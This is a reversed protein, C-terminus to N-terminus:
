TDIKVLEHIKGIADPCIVRIFDLNKPDNFRLVMPHRGSVQIDDGFNKLYQYIYERNERVARNSKIKAQYRYERHQTVLIKGPAVVDQDIPYSLDRLAEAVQPLGIISICEDLAVRLLDESEAYIRLWCSEVSIRIGPTKKSKLIKICDLWKITDADSVNIAWYLNRSKYAGNVFLTIRHSYRDFYLKRLKIKKIHPFKKDWYSSVMKM